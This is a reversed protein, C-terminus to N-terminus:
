AVALRQRQRDPEYSAGSVWLRHLLVALKRAVAVVARNRACRGGRAVIASGWRRLDCEEGFPGLIYNACNVVREADSYARRTRGSPNRPASKSALPLGLRAARRWSYLAAESPMGRQAAFEAATLGSSEWAGLLEQREEGSYQRRGAAPRPSPGAQGLPWASGSGPRKTRKSERM